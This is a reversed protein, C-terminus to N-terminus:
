TLCFRVGTSYSVYAAASLAGAWIRRRRGHEGKGRMFFLSETAGGPRYSVAKDFAQSSAYLPLIADSSNISLKNPGIM